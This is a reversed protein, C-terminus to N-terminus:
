LQLPAGLTLALDAHTLAKQVRLDWDGAAVVSPSFSIGFAVVIIYLDDRFLSGFLLRTGLASLAL